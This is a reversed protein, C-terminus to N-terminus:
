SHSTILVPQVSHLAGRKQRLFPREVLKWSLWALGLSVVITASVATWGSGIALGLILDIVLMHYLYLGYSLDQHRAGNNGHLPFSMAVSVILGALPLLFVPNIDNGGVDLHLRYAVLCLTLYGVGWWHVRGVFWMRVSNWCRQMAVGLLFIWLNPAVTRALIEYVPAHSHILLPKLALSALAVPVLPLVNRHHRLRLLAYLLPLFAYFELEIPITWQPGNLAGTNLPKFFSAQYSEFITMQATWWVLWGKFTVTGLRGVGLVLVVAINATLCVWLGPFIRLCRNRLYDRLSDSQEFSKSILIGSIVFFIPVGPFRQLVSTLLHAFHGAPKLFMASHIITVQLAAFLRVIDFNNVRWERPLQERVHPPPPPALVQGTTASTSAAASYLPETM